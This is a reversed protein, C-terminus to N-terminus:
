KRKRKWWMGRVREGVEPNKKKDDAEAAQKPQELSGAQGASIENIVNLCTEAAAEIRMISCVALCLCKRKEKGERASTKKQKTKKVCTLTMKCSSKCCFADKGFLSFFDWLVLFVCDCINDM